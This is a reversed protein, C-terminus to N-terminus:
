RAYYPKIRRALYEGMSHSSMFEFYVSEPVNYYNYVKYNNRFRVYLTGTLADYGVASIAESRSYSIPQLDM